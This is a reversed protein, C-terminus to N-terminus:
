AARVEAPPLSALPGPRLGLRRRVAHARQRGLYTIKYGKAPSGTAHRGLILTLAFAQADATTALHAEARFEELNLPCDVARELMLLIAELPTRPKM